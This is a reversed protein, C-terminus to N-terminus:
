YGWFQTCQCTDRAKYLKHLLNAHIGPYFPRQVKELSNVMGGGGGGAEMCM